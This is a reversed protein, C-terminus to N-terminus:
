QRIFKAFTKMGNGATVIVYYVGRQLHRIDIMQTTAYARFAMMLKGSADFLQLDGYEAHNGAVHLVDAAPNPYVAIGENGAPATVVTTKRVDFAISGASVGVAFSDVLTRSADYIFAMGSSVFDTTTAYLLNNVSDVEMGYFERNLAASDVVQLSAPDFAFIKQSGYHQYWIRSTFYTSTGCGTSVNALPTTSIIGSGTHIVSVSSGTFDKNNLTYLVDKDRMLNDPNLGEPGLDYERIYTKNVLDVVGIIGKLNSWDFANHVVIYAKDDMIQIDQTSYKPGSTTDLEYDLSLDSQNYVQFYSPLGGIEGRTVIIKGNWGAIGRIGTVAQTALRQLTYRNYKVLLRDAAVFVYDNEVIAQTAFRAGAITDFVFYVKASPNYAAVTVPVIQQGTNFDNYGENVIIVQHVYDAASTFTSFILPMSLAAILNRFFKTGM